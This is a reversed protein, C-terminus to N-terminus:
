GNVIREIIIAAAADIRSDARARITARRNETSSLVERASEASKEDSANQLQKVEEHARAITKAVTDRGAEHAAEVAHKANAQADQKLRRANEEAEGISKIADLSM